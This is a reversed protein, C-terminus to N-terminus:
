VIMKSPESLHSFTIHAARDCRMCLTRADWPFIKILTRFAWNIDNPPRQNDFRDFYITSTLKLCNNLHISNLQASFPPHNWLSIPRSRHLPEPFSLKLFELPIHGVGGTVNFPDSCVSVKTIEMTRSIGVCQVNRAKSCARIADDTAATTSWNGNKVKTSRCKVVQAPWVVQKVKSYNEFKKYIQFSSLIEDSIHQCNKNEPKLAFNQAHTKIYYSLFLTWKRRTCSSCRDNTRPHFNLDFPFFKM